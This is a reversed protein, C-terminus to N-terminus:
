RRKFSGMLSRKFKGLISNLRLLKWETTDIVRQTFEFDLEVKEPLTFDFDGIEKDGLGFLSPLSFRSAHTGGSFGSNRLMPVPPFLCMGGNRVITLHWHIYWSNVQGAEEMALMTKFNRLGHVNFRDKFVRSKRMPSGSHSNGSYSKWRNSWTAWGWSSGVPMFHAQSRGFGDLKPIDGCISWVRMDEKYLTLAENFYSLADRSLELDDELIIARDHVKLVQTIGSSLSAKLGMNKARSCIVLEPHEVEEFLRRVSDTKQKEADTRPGDIFVYVKAQQWGANRQLSSILAAALDARNFAFIAIPANNTDTL